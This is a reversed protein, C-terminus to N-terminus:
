VTIECKESKGMNLALEPTLILYGRNEYSTIINSGTLAYFKKNIKSVHTRISTELPERGHKFSYRIIEAPKMPAPYCRILYRLIMKETKTLEIEKGFITASENDASADLGAISYVGVVPYGNNVSFKSMESVLRASVTNDKYTADFLSKEYEGDSMAFLPVSYSYARLRKVYSALDPIREPAVVLIGRYQLGIEGLAGSPTEAHAVIGLTYLINVASQAHKKEKSIVLIM